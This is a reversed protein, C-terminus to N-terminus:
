RTSNRRNWFLKNVEEQNMFDGAEIEQDALNIEANYQNIFSADAKILSDAQYKYNLSNLFALLVKEEQENKPNVLVNM